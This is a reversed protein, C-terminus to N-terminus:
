HTEQNNKLTKYIEQPWDEIPTTEHSTANSGYGRLLRTDNVQREMVVAWRTLRTLELSEEFLNRKMIRYTM